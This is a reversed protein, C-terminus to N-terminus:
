VDEGTIRPAPAIVGLEESAIRRFPSKQAETLNSFRPLKANRLLARESESMERWARKRAARFRAREDPALSLYRRATAAEIRRSQSLRLRAEYFDAAVLDVFADPAGLGAAHHTQAGPGGASAPTVAFIILALAAISFASKRM